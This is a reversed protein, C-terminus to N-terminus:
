DRFGLRHARMRVDRYLMGGVGSGMVAPDVFLDARESSRSAVDSIRTADAPVATRLTAATSCHMDSM